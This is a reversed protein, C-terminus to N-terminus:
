RPVSEITKYQGKMITIKESGGGFFLEFLGLFLIFILTCSFMGFSFFGFDAHMFINPNMFWLLIIVMVSASMIM